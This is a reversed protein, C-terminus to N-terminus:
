KRLSTIDNLVKNMEIIKLQHSWYKNSRQLALFYDELEKVEILRVGPKYFSAVYNTHDIEILHVLKRYNKSSFNVYHTKESQSRVALKNLDPIYYVGLTKSLQVAQFRQTSM